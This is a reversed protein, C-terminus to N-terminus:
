RAFRRRPLKPAGQKPIENEMFLCEGAWRMVNTDPLGKVYPTFGGNFATFVVKDGQYVVLEPQVSSSTNINITKILEGGRFVQIHGSQATIFNFAFLAIAIFLLKLFKLNKFTNTKM